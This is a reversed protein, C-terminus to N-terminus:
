KALEQNDEVLFNHLFYFFTKFKNEVNLKIADILIM